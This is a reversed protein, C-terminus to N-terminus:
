RERAQGEFWNAVVRFGSSVQPGASVCAFWNGDPSADYPAHFSMQAYQFAFLARSRGLVLEGGSPKVPVSLLSDRALLFLEGGRPNWRPSTGGGASVQYRPGPGPFARVYVEFTGSEESSYALWKGDPSLAPEAQVRPSVAFPVAAGGGKWPVVYLDRDTDVARLERTVITDGSRTPIVEWLDGTTSYLSEPPASGDLTTAMARFVNRVIRHFVRRGDPSWEPNTSTSDNTVRALTGVRIDYLWIDMPPNPTPGIVVLIRNGDPSVRPANYARQPVEFAVAHGRRDVRMLSRQQLASGELYVVTGERSVAYKAVPPSSGISIGTAVQRPEGTTKRNAADFGVAMLAGDNTAYVLWGPEVYRPASGSIGLLTLDGTALTVVALEQGAGGRRPRLEVVVAKGDPLADPWNPIWSSDALPIPTRSGGRSRILVLGSTSTAYVIEDEAIWTGGRWISGVTTGEGLTTATGGALDVRRIQGSAVFAISRGDASFFPFTANQSGPIPTPASADLPWINLHRPQGVRGGVYALTSGDPSVVVPTGGIDIVSLDAPPVLTYRLFPRNRVAPERTLSWVAIAAAAVALAWGSIASLRLPPSAQPRRTRTGRTVRRGGAEGGLAAAFDAASGFRDAPLKELACHIAAEIHDPVAKRIASLPRPEETMLRAIVAQTSAGSFPPEGALMEYLVAGLSYVDSRADLEREATAQEPSMYQPTGLSLGTQTLRAGGAAKVALAIGFDAVVPQGDQLLINEPKIDRHIVGHRHAYDLAAAVARAIAVAGQVPLQRERDLRQRLSEGEVFPMTYYVLGEATGSDFLQLINPHQLNATTKIETLFRDAGLVAGLEPHLVKLAVNRDHKLDRALYVTAMGGQGLERDFRYRDALAAALPNPQM